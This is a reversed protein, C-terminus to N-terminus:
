KRIIEGIHYVTHHLAVVYQFMPGVAMQAAVHVHRYEETKDIVM